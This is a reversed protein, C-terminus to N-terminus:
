IFPMLALQICGIFFGLIAGSLEIFRFEKKLLDQLLKELDTVKLANIEYEVIKKVDVKQGIKAMGEDIEAKIQVFLKDGVQNSLTNILNAPLMSILFPMEKQLFDMASESVKEILKDKLLDLDVVSALNTEIQKQVGLKEAFLEGLKEALQVQRKPFVGHLKIGLINRKIRPYFLMKIAIWNTFWGISGAIVPIALAAPSFSFNSFTSFVESFM